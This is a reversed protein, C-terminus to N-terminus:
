TYPVVLDGSKVLADPFWCAIAHGATPNGDSSVPSCFVAYEGLDIDARVRLVIREKQLNGPDAFSGIGIM